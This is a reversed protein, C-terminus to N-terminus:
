ISKKIQTVNNEPESMDQLVIMLSQKLKRIKGWM